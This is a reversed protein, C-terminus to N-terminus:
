FIDLLRNFQTRIKFLSSGIDCPMYLTDYKVGDQMFFVETYNHQYYFNQAFLISTHYPQSVYGIKIYTRTYDLIIKVLSQIQVSVAYNLLIKLESLNKEAGGGFM